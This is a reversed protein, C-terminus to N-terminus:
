ELVQLHDCFTFSVHRHIIIIIIIIIIYMSKVRECENTKSGIYSGKFCVFYMFTNNLRCEATNLVNLDTNM